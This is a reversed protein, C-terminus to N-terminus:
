KGIVGLEAATVCDGIGKPSSRKLKSTDKMINGTTSSSSVM